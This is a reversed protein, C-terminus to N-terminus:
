EIMILDLDIDLGLSALRSLTQSKITIAPAQDTIYVAISVEAHLGFKQIALAFKASKPEIIQLLECICPELEVSKRKSLALEWGDHKRTLETNGIKDGTRWTRTAALELVGSVEDPDFSKGTLM